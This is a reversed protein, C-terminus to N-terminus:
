DQNPLPIGARAEERVHDVMAEPIPRCGEEAAVRAAEDPSLGEDLARVLGWVGSVRGGSRCHLMVHGPQSNIAELVEQATVLTFDAGHVPINIYTIGAEAAAAAEAAVGPEAPDQLSIIASYGGDALESVVEPNLAGGGAVQESLITFNMIEVAHPPGDAHFAKGSSNNGASSAEPAACAGLFLGLALLFTTKSANM